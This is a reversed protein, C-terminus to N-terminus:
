EIRVTCKKVACTRNKEKVVSLYSGEEVVVGECVKNTKPILISSYKNLPLGIWRTMKITPSLAIQNLRGFPFNENQKKKKLKKKIYIKKLNKLKKIKKYIYLHFNRMRNSYQFIIINSYTM